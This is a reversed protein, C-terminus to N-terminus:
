SCARSNLPSLFVLEANQIRFLDINGSAPQRRECQEDDAPTWKEAFSVFIRAANSTHTHTHWMSHRSPIGTVPVHILEHANTIKCKLHYLKFRHTLTLASAHANTHSCIDMGTPIPLSHYVAAAAKRKRDWITYKRKGANDKASRAFANTKQKKKKPPFEYAAIQTLCLTFHTVVKDIWENIRPHPDPFTFAMVSYLM